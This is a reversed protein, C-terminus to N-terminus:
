VGFRLFRVKCFWICAVLRLALSLPVRSTIIALCHGKAEDFRRVNVLGVALQARFLYRMSSEPACTAVVAELHEVKSVVQAYRMIKREKNEKATVNEKLALEFGEKVKSAVLTKVRADLKLECDPPFPVAPCNYELFTYNLKVNCELGLVFMLRKYLLDMNTSKRVNEFQENKSFVGAYCGYKSRMQIKSFLFLFSIKWGHKRKRQSVQMTLEWFQDNEPSRGGLLNNLTQLVVARAGDKAERM